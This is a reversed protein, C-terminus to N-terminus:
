SKSLYYDEIIKWYKERVFDLIEELNGEGFESRYSDAVQWAIEEVYDHYNYDEPRVQKMAISVLEDIQNLRRKLFLSQSETIIYKM